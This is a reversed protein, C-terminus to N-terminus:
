PAIGGAMTDLSTDEVFVDGEEEISAISMEYFLKVAEFYQADNIYPRIADVIKRAEL